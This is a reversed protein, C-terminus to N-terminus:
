KLGKLTQTLSIIEVGLPPGAVTSDFVAVALRNSWVGGIDLDCRGKGVFPEKIPTHGHVVYRGHVLFDEDDKFRMWQTVFEPQAEIPYKNSGAAHTFFRYNDTHYRPLNEFFTIVELPLRKCDFSKLTEKGGNMTWMSVESKGGRYAEIAMDEHNGKLLLWQWGEPPGAMLLDVVERNKPGRDIYDGLFIVEGNEQSEVWDLAKRLLDYHGHIDPIVYQKM